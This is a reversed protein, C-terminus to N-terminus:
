FIAETEQQFFLGTVIAKATLCCLPAMQEM